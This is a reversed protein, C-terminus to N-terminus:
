RRSETKWGSRGRKVGIAQARTSFEPAATTQGAHQTPHAASRRPMFCQLLVVGRQQLAPQPARRQHEPQQQRSQQQGAAPQRRHGGGENGVFVLALDAAIEGQRLPGAQFAAHRHHISDAGHHRLFGRHARAVEVGASGEALATFVTARKIQPELRQLLAGSAILARFRDLRAEVTGQSAVDVIGTHHDCGRWGHPAEAAFGAQPQFQQVAATSLESQLLEFCYRMTEDVGGLGAVAKFPHAGAKIGAGM